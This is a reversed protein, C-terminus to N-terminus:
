YNNQKGVTVYVARISLLVIETLSSTPVTLTQATRVELEGSVNGSEGDTKTVSLVALAM